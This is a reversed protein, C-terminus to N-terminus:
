HWIKHLSLAFSLFSWSFAHKKRRRGVELFLYNLINYQSFMDAFIVRAKIYTNEGNVMVKKDNVSVFAM